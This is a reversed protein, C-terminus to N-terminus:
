WRLKRYCAFDREELLYGVAQAMIQTNDAGGLEVSTDGIQMRKPMTMQEVDWAKSDVKAKLYKGAVMEIWVTALGMPVCETNLQSRIHNSVDTALYQIFAADENPIDKGTLHKIIQNVSEMFTM